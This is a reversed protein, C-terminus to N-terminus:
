MKNNALRKCHYATWELMGNTDNDIFKAENLAESILAPIAGNMGNNSVEELLAIMEKKYDRNFDM